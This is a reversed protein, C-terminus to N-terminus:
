VRPLLSRMFSFQRDIYVEELGGILALLNLGELVFMYNEALSETHDDALVGQAIGLNLMALLTRKVNELVKKQIVRDQASQHTFFYEYMARSMSGDIKFLLREKYESLYEEFLDDFPVNKMVLGRIDDFKHEVRRELVEIFIDDVSDFYLYIGGRSIGCEEIIDKMTADILGKRCFVALASELIAERKAARRESHTPV